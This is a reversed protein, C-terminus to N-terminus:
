QVRLPVTKTVTTQRYSLRLKVVLQKRSATRPVHFRCVAGSVKTPLSTAGIAAACTMRTPKTRKGNSLKVSVSLRVDDGAPVPVPFISIEFVKVTVPAAPALTYGWTGSNPADDVHGESEDDGQLTRVWFRFRRTNGLDRRLISIRAGGAFTADLSDADADAFVVGNWRSFAVSGAPGVAISYEAGDSSPDGSDSNADTDLFLELQEDSRLRTRNPTAVRFVLRGTPDDTVTVRTVDPATGADGAADAYTAGAGAAGALACTM